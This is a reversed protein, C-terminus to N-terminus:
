LRNVTRKLGLHVSLCECVGSHVSECYREDPLLITNSGSSGEGLIHVRENVVSCKRMYNYRKLGESHM